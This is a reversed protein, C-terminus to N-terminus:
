WPRPSCSALFPSLEQRAQPMGRPRERRHAWPSNLQRLGPVGGLEAVRSMLGQPATDGDKPTFSGNVLNPKLSCPGRQSFSLQIISGNLRPAQLLTGSGGM